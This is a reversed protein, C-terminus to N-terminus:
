EKFPYTNIWFEVTEVNMEMSVPFKVFNKIGNEDIFSFIMELENSRVLEVNTKM